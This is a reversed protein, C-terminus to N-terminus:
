FNILLHLKLVLLSFSLYELTKLLHSVRTQPKLKHGTELPQFLIFEIYMVITLSLSYLMIVLTGFRVLGFLFILGVKSFM